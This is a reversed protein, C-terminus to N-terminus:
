PRWREPTFGPMTTMDPPYPTYEALLGLTDVEGTIFREWADQAQERTDPHINVEALLDLINLRIDTGGKGQFWKIRRDWKGGPGNRWMKHYARAM